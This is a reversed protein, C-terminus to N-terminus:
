YFGNLILESLHYLGGLTIAPGYPIPRADLASTGPATMPATRQLTQRVLMVLAIAGGIVAINFSVNLIAQPGTWLALVTMLKVDGGGFAGVMNMGATIIFVIIAVGLAGPISDARGALSLALAYLIFTALGALCTQNSIRLSRIDTYAAYLLVSAFGAIATGALIEKIFEFM